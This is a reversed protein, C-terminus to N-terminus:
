FEPGLFPDYGYQSKWKWESQQPQVPNKQTGPRVDGENVNSGESTTEEYKWNNIENGDERGILFLEPFELVIGPNEHPRVLCLDLTYPLSLRAQLKATGM